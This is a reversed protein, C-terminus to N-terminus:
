RRPRSRALPTGELSGGQAEYIDVSIASRRVTTESALAKSIAVDSTDVLDVEDTPLREAWRGQNMLVHRLADEDAPREAPFVPLAGDALLEPFGFRGEWESLETKM